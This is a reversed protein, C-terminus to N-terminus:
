FMLTNLYKCLHASALTNVTLLSVYRSWRSLNFCQEVAVTVNFFFDKPSIIFGVKFFIYM